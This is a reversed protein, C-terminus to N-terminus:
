LFVLYENICNLKNCELQKSKSDNLGKKNKNKINLDLM